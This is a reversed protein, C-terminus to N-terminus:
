PCPRSKQKEDSGIKNKKENLDIKLGAADLNAHAFSQFAKIKAEMEKPTALKWLDSKQKERDKKEDKLELQLDELEDKYHKIKREVKKLLM